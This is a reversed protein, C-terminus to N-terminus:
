IMLSITELFKPLNTANGERVSEITNEIVEALVLNNMVKKVIELGALLQVGSSLLTSLTRAFRAVAVKRNLEGLRPLNLLSGDFKKRGKESRLYSRIFYAGSVIMVLVLWWYNQFFNTIGIVIQTPVPLAIKQKEFQATIKPIIFGFLWVVMAMSLGIMIIPYTMASTIKSKLEAQGEKYEALRTLIVDLAGSSEGAKMMNIYINDFIHPYSDLCDGLREGESVREKIDALAKKLVLNDVQDVVVNLSDVLPVGSSLLVSLQRTMGAMDSLTIKKSSSAGKFLGGGRSVKTIKTPFIKQKRLKSRASKISDAEVIDSVKKGKADVGKYSFSTM